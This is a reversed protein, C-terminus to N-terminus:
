VGCFPLFGYEDELADDSDFVSNYLSPQTQMPQWLLDFSVRKLIGNKIRLKGDLTIGFQVEGDHLDLDYVKMELLNALETMLLVDSSIEEDIDTQNILISDPVSKRQLLQKFGLSYEVFKPLKFNPFIAAATEKNLVTLAHIVHKFRQNKVQFSNAKITHPEGQFIELGLIELHELLEERQEILRLQVRNKLHRWLQQRWTKLSLERKGLIRPVDQPSITELVDSLAQTYEEPSYDQKADLVVAVRDGRQTSLVGQHILESDLATLILDYTM